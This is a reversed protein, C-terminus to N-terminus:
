TRTIIANNKVKKTTTSKKKTLARPEGQGKRAGYIWNKKKQQQRNSGLEKEEKLKYTQKIRGVKRSARPPVTGGVRQL